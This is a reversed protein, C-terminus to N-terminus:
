RVSVEINEDGSCENIVQQKKVAWCETGYSMTPRITTKFLKGKLKHPVRGDCLIGSVM